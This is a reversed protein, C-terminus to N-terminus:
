QFIRKQLFMVAVVIALLAVSTKHLNGTNCKNRDQCFCVKIMNGDATKAEHCSNTLREGTNTLSGYACYRSVFTPKKSKADIITYKVCSQGSSLRCFDTVTENMKPEDLGGFHPAYCNYRGPCAAKEKSTSKSNWSM